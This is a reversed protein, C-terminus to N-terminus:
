LGRETDDNPIPRSLFDLVLKNFEDPYELQTWHGCNKFVHLEANPLLELLKLSREVPIVKDDYGHVILTPAQIATILSEEVAMKNGDHRQDHFMAWYAEQAGPAVSAQYRAEVLQRTVLSQDYVFATSILDRMAAESPQYERVQRLGDTMEGGIGGSGMLVLRRVREAHRDAIGLAVRGGMSNGVIDAKKIGLADLFGVAHAIWADVGYRVDAPRESYGFGVIDPAIVRHYGALVPFTRSWNAWASVGPGSGHLLLVADGTGEDHYHTLIDGVAITKGDAATLAATTETM